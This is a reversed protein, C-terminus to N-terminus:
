ASFGIRHFAKEVARFHSNRAFTVVRITFCFCFFFGVVPFVGFLGSMRRCPNHVPNNWHSTYFIKYSALASFRFGIVLSRSWTSDYFLCFCFLFAFRILPFDLHISTSCWREIKYGPSNQSLSNIHYAM